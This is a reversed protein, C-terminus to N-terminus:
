RQVAVRVNSLVEEPCRSPIAPNSWLQRRELLTKEQEYYNSVHSPGGEALDGGAYDLALLWQGVAEDYEAPYILATVYHPSANDGRDALHLFARCPPPNKESAAALTEFDDRAADADSRYFFMGSEIKFRRASVGQLEFRGDPTASHIRYVKGDRYDESELLIAIEEATYGLATWEGFDYVYLGRFRGPKSVSPLIM